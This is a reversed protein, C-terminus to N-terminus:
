GHRNSLTRSYLFSQINNESLYSLVVLITSMLSFYLFQPNKIKKSVNATTLTPFRAAPGLPALLLAQGARDVASFFLNLLLLSEM